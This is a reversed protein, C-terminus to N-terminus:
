TKEALRALAGALASFASFYAPNLNGETVTM